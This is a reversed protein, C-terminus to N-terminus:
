GELGIGLVRVRVRVGVWDLGLGSRRARVLGATGFELGLGRVKIYVRVKYVRVRVVRSFM